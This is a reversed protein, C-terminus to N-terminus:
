SNTEADPRPGMRMNGHQDCTMAHFAEAQGRLSRTIRPLAQKVEEPTKERAVEISLLAATGCTCRVAYFHKRFGQSALLNMKFGKLPEIGMGPPVADRLLSDFEGDDPVTSQSSSKDKSDVDQRAIANREIPKFYREM